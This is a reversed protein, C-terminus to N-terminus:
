APQEVRRREARRLRREIERMWRRLSTLGAAGGSQGDRPLGCVLELRAIERLSVGLIKHLYVLRREQPSLCRWSRVIALQAPDAARALAQRVMRRVTTRSVGLIGALEGHSAGRNYVLRLLNRDRPPMARIVDLSPGDSPPMGDGSDSSNLRKYCTTVSM